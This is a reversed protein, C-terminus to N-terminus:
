IQHFGAQLDLSTFYAAGALEDLLEDSIPVLYKAKVTIANLHRYDVCFRWSGDKKKVLLVLSAFASNSKQIIGQQLMENVQREIETKLQPAYRYPRIFVPQAGAVLPISHDCARRPPLETPPQFLPAFDSLLETIADSVSHLSSSSDDTNHQIMSLQVVSGVPLKPDDSFLVTTAGNYPIAIWKQQWHVQMLSFRSLWDIGLIM